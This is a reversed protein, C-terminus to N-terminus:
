SIYEKLDNNQIYDMLKEWTNRLNDYTKLPNFTPIAQLQKLHTNKIAEKYGQPDNKSKYHEALLTNAKKIKHELDEKLFCGPYPDFEEPHIKHPTINQQQHKIKEREYVFRYIDERLRKWIPHSKPPPLHTISLENDLYFTYGYMRANMLYDIDEGRPVNPDFLIKSYLTKPIIMNGGFVFPTEKIRPSTGIIKKFAENMKKTKDWHKMWPSFPKKVLYEGQENVYYGAIGYNQTKNIPHIFHERAKKIFNPDEFLEDDDILITVDAKKIAPLILCLNRVNSYGTINILDAFEKKKRKLYYDKLQQIHSPGIITKKIDLSVSSVIEQVKKEVKENIEPSTPIALIILEFDQQELIKISQTLRHLTGKKDLPTPHDYIADGKKWGISTDRSWYSPIIMVTKM